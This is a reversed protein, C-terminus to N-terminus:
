SFRAGAQPWCKSLSFQVSKHTGDLTVLLITTYPTDNPAVTFLTSNNILNWAINDTESSGSSKVLKFDSIQGTKKLRIAFTIPERASSCFPKFKPNGEIRKQLTKFWPALKDSEVSLKWDNSPMSSCIQPIFFLLLASFIARMPSSM